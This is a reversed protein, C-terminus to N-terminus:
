RRQIALVDALPAVACISTLDPRSRLTVLVRLGDVLFAEPLEVPEFREDEGAVLMWCGGEINVFRITAALGPEAPLRYEWLQESCQLRGTGLAFDHQAMRDDPGALQVTLRPGRLDECLYSAPLWADAVPLGGRWLALLVSDTRVTGFDYEYTRDADPTVDASPVLTSDVPQNVM